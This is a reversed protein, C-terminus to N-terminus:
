KIIRAYNDDLRFFRSLFRNCVGIFHLINGEQKVKFLRDKHSVFYFDGRKEYRFLQGCELTKQLDFNEVAITQM